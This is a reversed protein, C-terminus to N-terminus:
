AGTRPLDQGFIIALLLLLSEGHVGVWRPSGQTPTSYPVLGRVSSLLFTNDSLFSMALEIEQVKSSNSSSVEFGLGQSTEITVRVDPRIIQGIEALFLKIESPGRGSRHLVDSYGEFNTLESQINRKIAVAIAELISSKGGGNPGVLLTLPKLELDVGPEGISKFNKISVRSIM